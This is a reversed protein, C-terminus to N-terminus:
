KELLLDMVEEAAWCEEIVAKIVDETIPIQYRRKELLLPILYKGTKNQAVAKVVDAIIQVQGGDRKLLLSLIEKRDWNQAAAKAVNKTIQVQDRRRELLLIMVEKGNLLNKTPAIVVEKTINRDKCNFLELLVECGRYSAAIVARRTLDWRRVRVEKRLHSHITEAFNFPSIVFLGFSLMLRCDELKRSLIRDAFM